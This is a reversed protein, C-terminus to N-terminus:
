SEEEGVPEEATRLWGTDTTTNVVLYLYPGENQLINLITPFSDIYFYLVLTGNTELKAPPLVGEREYFFMNGAHENFRDLFIAAAYNRSNGTYYNISYRNFERTHTAM